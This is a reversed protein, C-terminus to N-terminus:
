RSGGSGPSVLTGATLRVTLDATFVHRWLLHFLVPLVAIPDGAEAVGPMLPVPGTFVDVLRAAVDGVGFRPHRYRSLWTVNATLVPDPVGLRLFRWVALRCATEAAAFAEADRPEIRDDPRVDIVVATDDAMRAFLDPAHRRREGRAGTWSLWFPQVAIAVTEPDFDLLMVHDRELWSEYGLHTGTTSSWWFGPLHRQGRSWRFRRVPMGDEFRVEACAALPARREAGGGDIFGLEFGSGALEVRGAAGALVSMM